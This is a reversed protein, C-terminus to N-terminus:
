IGTRLKGNASQPQDLCFISQLIQRMSRNAPGIRRGHTGLGGSSAVEFELTSVSSASQGQFIHVTNSKIQLGAFRRMGVNEILVEVVDGDGEWIIGRKDSAKKVEKKSRQEEVGRLLVGTLKGTPSMASSWVLRFVPAIKDM